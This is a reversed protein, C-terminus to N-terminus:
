PLNDLFESIAEGIELPHDEQLFHLGFGVDVATTNPFSSVMELLTMPAGPPAQDQVLVGPSAYLLLKPVASTSLYQGFAEFSAQNDAPQGEIPLDLPVRQLARRREVNQWPASYALREKECFEREIFSPMMTEIFWNDQLIAEQGAESMIFRAQPPLLQASAVPFYMAEMHVLGAIKEPHNAAFNFAPISGIDHVVFVIDDLDLAEIFHDFWRQHEPYRFTAGPPSGSQGYGVLDIAIARHNDSVHPVINRWLRSNSPAGHVFVVPRGQGEDLYSIFEEPRDGVSVTYREFNDESPVLAGSANRPVCGGAEGPDAVRTTDSSGCGLSLAAVALSTISRRNTFLPAPSLLLTM